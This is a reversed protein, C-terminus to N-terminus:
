CLPRNTFDTNFYAANISVPYSTAKCGDTNSVTLALPYVGKKTFQHVPNKQNSTTGDGFDWKYLLTGPGTSSNTLKLPDSLSCLLNENTTFNPEIRGLIEIMGPKTITSYCGYNNTVTLNVTPKQQYNYYHSMTNGYDQQTQGAGFDWAYSSINGDGATANAIFGADAPICVKPAAVLFAVTPKKYVIVNATKSSTKAGDTVTLTVTYTKENTYIAGPNALASTNGNGFDWRYAANASAGFTQNSFSVSLPSCGGPKDMSFNATMQAYIFTPGPLFLFFVLVIRRKHFAILQNM